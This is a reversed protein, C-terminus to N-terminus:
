KDVVRGIGVRLKDLKNYIADPVIALLLAILKWRKTIYAIKKKAKIAYFIQSAADEKSSVWYTGPFESFVTHEVNVWGPVIDTVDIPINKQIMRNRIGELYRSVFAKAASFVPCSASGRLGDISSIGVLHGSKQKEFYAVATHAMTWFGAIDVDIIRKNSEWSNDFGTDVFSSISILMMDLGGMQDILEQLLNSANKHDSADIQKIYSETGIEKQLSELLNVRRGVLGLVYGDKALLKAVARGMGSTAGVVIARKVNEKDVEKALLQNSFLLFILLFVKKM